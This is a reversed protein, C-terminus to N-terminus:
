APKRASFLAGVTVPSSKFGTSHLLRAEVFGASMLMELFV